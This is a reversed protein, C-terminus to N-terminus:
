NPRKKDDSILASTSMKQSLTRQSPRTRDSLTLGLLVALVELAQVGEGAADVREVHRRRGGEREVDRVSLAALDFGVRGREKLRDIRERRCALRREFREEAVRPRAEDAVTELECM